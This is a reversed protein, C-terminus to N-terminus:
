LRFFLYGAWTLLTLGLMILIAKFSQFDSGSVLSIILVVPWVWILSIFAFEFSNKVLLHADIKGTAMLAELVPQVPEYWFFLTAAPVIFIFARISWHLGKKFFFVITVLSWLIAPFILGNEM